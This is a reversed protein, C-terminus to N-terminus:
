EDFPAIVDWKKGGKKGKAGKPVPLLSKLSIGLDDLIGSYKAAASGLVELNRIWPNQERFKSEQGKATNVYHVGMAEEFAKQAMQNYYESQHMLRTLETEWYRRSRESKAKEFMLQAQGIQTSVHTQQTQAVKLATDAAMQARASGQTIAREGSENAEALNRQATSATIVANAINDAARGFGQTLNDGPDISSGAGSSGIGAAQTGALKPNLGAAEMDKVAYQYKNQALERQFAIQAKNAKASAHSGIIGSVINGAAGIGAGLLAGTLLM